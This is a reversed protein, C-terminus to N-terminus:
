FTAGARSRQSPQRTRPLPANQFHGGQPFLGSCHQSAATRATAAAMREPHQTWWNGGVPTDFSDPGAHCDISKLLVDMEYKWGLVSRGCSPSKEPSLSLGRSAWAGGRVTHGPRPGCTPAGLVQARHFWPRGRRTSRGSCGPRM